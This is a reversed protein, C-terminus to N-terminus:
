RMHVTLATRLTICHHLNTAEHAHVAPSLHRLGSQGMKLAICQHNNVGRMSAGAPSLIFFAWTVWGSSLHVKQRPIRPTFFFGLPVEYVCSPTIVFPVTMSTLKLQAETSDM